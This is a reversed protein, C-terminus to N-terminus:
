RVLTQARSRSSGTKTATLFALWARATYRIMPGAPDASDRVMIGDEASAVEVCAGNGVSRRSERWASQGAATDASAM